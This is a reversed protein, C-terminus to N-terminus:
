PRGPSTKQPRGLVIADRKNEWNDSAKTNFFINKKELDLALWYYLLSYEGAWSYRNVQRPEIAACCSRAILVSVDDEAGPFREPRENISYLYSMRWILMDFLVHLRPLRLQNNSISFCNQCQCGDKIATQRHILIIERMSQTNPLVSPASTATM